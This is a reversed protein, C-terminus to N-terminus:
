RAQIARCLEIAALAHGIHGAGVLKERSREEEAAYAPGAHLRKRLDQLPTSARDLPRIAAEVLPMRRFLEGRQLPLAEAQMRLVAAPDDRLVLDEDGAGRDLVRNGIRLARLFEAAQAQSPGLEIRDQEVRAAGAQGNGAGAPLRGDRAHEAPDKVGHAALRRDHVARHHLVEDRGFAGEGARHDAPLREIDALDVFAVARDREIARCDTHQQVDAEIVLAHFFQTCQEAVVERAAADAHDVGVVLFREGQQRMRLLDDGEPDLLLLRLDSDHRASDRFARQSLGRHDDVAVVSALM